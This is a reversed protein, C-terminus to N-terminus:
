WPMFSFSRFGSALKLGRRVLGDHRLMDLDTQDDLDLESHRRKMTVAPASSVGVLPSVRPADVLPSADLGDMNVITNVSARDSADDGNLTDDALVASGELPALRHELEKILPGLEVSAEDVVLQPPDQEVARKISEEVLAAKDSQCPVEDRLDGVREHLHNPLSNEVTEVPLSSAHPTLNCRSRKSIVSRAEIAPDFRGLKTVQARGHFAFLYVKQAVWKRTSAFRTSM